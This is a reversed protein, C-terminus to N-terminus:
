KLINKIVVPDHLVRGVNKTRNFFILYRTGIQQKAVEGSSHILQLDQMLPMMDKLKNLNDRDLQTHGNLRSLIDTSIENEFTFNTLQPFVIDKLMVFLRNQVMLDPPETLENPRKGKIYFYKSPLSHLNYLEATLEKNFRYYYQDGVVAILQVISNTDLLRACLTISDDIHVKMFGRMLDCSTIYQNPNLVNWDDHRKVCENYPKEAIKYYGNNCVCKDNILRGNVCLGDSIRSLVCKGSRTDFRKFKSACVCKIQTDDNYQFGNKEVLQVSSFESSVMETCDGNYNNNTIFEPYVCTCKGDVLKGFPQECYVGVRKGSKSHKVPLSTEHHLHKRLMIAAICMVVVAVLMFTM